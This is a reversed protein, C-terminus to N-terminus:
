EGYSVKDLIGIFHRNQAVVACDTILTKASTANGEVFSLTILSIIEDVYLRVEDIQYSTNIMVLSTYVVKLPFDKMVGYNWIFHDFMEVYLVWFQRTQYSFPMHLGM